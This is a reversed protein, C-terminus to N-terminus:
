TKPEVADDGDRATEDDDEVLEDDDEGDAGTSCSEQLPFLKLPEAPSPPSLEGKM